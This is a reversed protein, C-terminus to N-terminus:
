EGRHQRIVLWVTCCLAAFTAGLCPFYLNQPLHAIAPHSLLCITGFGASGLSSLMIYFPRRSETQELPNSPHERRELQRLLLEQNEINKILFYTRRVVRRNPHRVQCILVFHSRNEQIREVKLIEDAGAPLYPIEAISRLFQQVEILATVHSLIDRGHPVLRRADMAFLRDGEMLFFVTADQTSRRGLQMALFVTLATVGLCLGASILEVPWRMRFGFVIGSATLLLALITIGAIGSLTHFGSHNKKGAGPSMWIHTIARHM